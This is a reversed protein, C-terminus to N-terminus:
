RSPGSPLTKAGFPLQSPKSGRKFDVRKEEREREEDRWEDGSAMEGADRIMQM